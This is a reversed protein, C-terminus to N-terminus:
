AALPKNLAACVDFLRGPRRVLANALSVNDDRSMRSSEHIYAVSAGKGNYAANKKSWDIVHRYCHTGVAPVSWDLSDLKCNISDTEVQRHGSM